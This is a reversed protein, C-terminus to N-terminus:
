YRLSIALTRSENALVMFKSEQWKPASLAHTRNNSAGYGEVPIGLVNKDFQRNDNEDHHVVIAYTGPAVGEFVCRASNGTLKVRQSTTGTATRPFGEASTYLRCALSGNGTRLPGINAVITCTNPSPAAQAIGCILLAAGALQAWCSWTLLAM